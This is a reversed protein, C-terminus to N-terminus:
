RAADCGSRLEHDGRELEKCLQRLEQLARHVRVRAAGPQCEVIRAIEDYPLDHFRSLVLVERKEPALRYLAAEVIALRDDSGEGRDGDTSARADRAWAQRASADDGARRLHDLCVNRALRYMWTTFRAEGRYSERYRLMRLFTEQVLDAAADASGTMRYALAHVTAHHREFLAGLTALDGGRVAAM